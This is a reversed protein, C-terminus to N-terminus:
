LVSLCNHSYHLRPQARRAASRAPGGLCGATRRRGLRGASFVSIDFSFVGADAESEAEADADGERGVSTRAAAVSPRDEDPLPALNKVRRNGPTM